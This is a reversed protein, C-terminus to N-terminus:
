ATHCTSSLSVDGAGHSEWMLFTYLSWRQHLATRTKAHRKCGWYGHIQLSQLERFGLHLGLGIEIAHQLQPQLGCCCLHVLLVIDLSWHQHLATSMRAHRKIGWYGQFQLSQPESFGLGIQIADQLQPQPAWCWLHMILFTDM